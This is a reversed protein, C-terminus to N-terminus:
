EVVEMLEANEYINGIIELRPNEDWVIWLAEHKVWFCCDVFEVVAKCINNDIYQIIDGEFIENGNVDKLGTSQMIEVENFDRKLEHITKLRGKFEDNAVSSVFCVGELQNFGYCARMKNTKKDWVRFKPIM